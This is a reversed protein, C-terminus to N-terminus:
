LTNLETSATTKLGQFQEIVRTRAQSHDIMPQPYLQGLGQETLWHGPTHIQKNPLEALEPLWRRIFAGDPDFRRSQTTPNFIRFYPAADAGTGASWQWGGNNSAFDADILQQMFWAEGLRWDVMLDKTLFSAVLMRLRNHLWGTQKLCRMAADIIPFGTTGQQWRQLLASDHNWPLLDTETKFPRHMSLRPYDWMLHRYFERWILENLWSFGAEGRTLPLFGLQQEIANLCQASSLVGIALYGSLASTGKLAPYDRQEPYNNLSQEAFQQLRRHATNEGIPWAQHDHAAASVAAPKFEITPGQPSPAPLCAYGMESVRKIWSRAFPTFVRYPKNQGTRLSGPPMLCDGEFLQLSLKEAVAADRRQENIGNERNAYITTIHQPSCWLALREPLAQFDSGTLQTFPIGRKALELGLDNLTHEIFRQQRAGVGHTQRQKDCHIYLAHVPRGAQCAATLAPNDRVRLDNRFWVLSTM